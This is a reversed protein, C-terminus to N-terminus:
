WPLLSDSPTGPTADNPPLHVYWPCRWYGPAGHSPEMLLAHDLGQFAKNLGGFPPHDGRAELAQYCRDVLNFANEYFGAWIHLGHEEARGGKDQNRGVAGKGGLRWGITYITIDFQDGSPDLETLEFAASLAAIGGGLIAVKQKPM